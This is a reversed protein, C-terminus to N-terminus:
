SEQQRFVYSNILEIISLRLNNDTVNDPKVNRLYALVIKFLHEHVMGRSECDVIIKKIEESNREVVDIRKLVNDM